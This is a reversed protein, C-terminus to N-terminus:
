RRPRSARTENEARLPVEVFTSTSKEYTVIYTPAPVFVRPNTDLRGFGGKFCSIPRGADNSHKLVGELGRRFCM